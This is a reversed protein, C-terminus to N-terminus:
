LCSFLLTPPQPHPLLRQLLLNLVSAEPEPQQAVTEKTDNLSFFASTTNRRRARGCGRGWLGAPRYHHAGSVASYDQEQHNHLRQNGDSADQLCVLSSPQLM